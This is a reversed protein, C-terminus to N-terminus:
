ECCWNSCHVPLNRVFLRIGFYKGVGFGRGCQLCGVTRGSVPELNRSSRLVPVSIKSFYSLFSVNFIEDVDRADCCLNFRTGACFLNLSGGGFNTTNEHKKLYLLSRISLIQCPNSKDILYGSPLTRAFV